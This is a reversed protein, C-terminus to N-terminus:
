SFRAFHQGPLIRTRRRRKACVFDSPRIIPRLPPAGRRALLFYIRPALRSFDNGALGLTLHAVDDMRYMREIM